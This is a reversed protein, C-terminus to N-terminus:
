CARTVIGLAAGAVLLAPTAFPRPLSLPLVASDALLCMVVAAHFTTSSAVTALLSTLSNAFGQAASPDVDMMADPQVQAGGVTRIRTLIGHEDREIAYEVPEDGDARLWSVKELPSASALQIVALLETERARDSQLTAKHPEASVATPAENASPAFPLYLQRLQSSSPVCDTLDITDTTRWETHGTSFDFSRTRLDLTQLGPAAALIVKPVNLGSSAFQLSFPDFALEELCTVLPLAGQVLERCADEAFGECMHASLCTLNPTMRVLPALQSVGDLHLTRLAPFTTNAPLVRALAPGLAVGQANLRLLQSWASTHYDGQNDPIQIRLTSLQPASLLIHALEPLISQGCQAQCAAAFEDFFDCELRLTFHRMYGLTERDACALSALKAASAVTMSRFLLSRVALRTIRCTSAFNVLDSDSSCAAVQYLLEAPLAFLPM